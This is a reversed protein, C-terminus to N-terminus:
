GCGDTVTWTRTITYTNFACTGAAGQTSFEAYSVSTIACESCAQNGVVSPPTPVADCEVTADFPVGILSPASCCEDAYKPEPVAVCGATFHGAKLNAQFNRGDCRRAFFGTAASCGTTCYQIPFSYCAEDPLTITFTYVGTAVKTATLCQVVPTFAGPNTVLVELTPATGANACNTVCSLTVAYTKGQEIYWSQVAGTGSTLGCPTCPVNTDVCGGDLAVVSSLRGVGLADTYEVQAHAGSAQDATGLLTAGRCDELCEWLAMFNGDQDADVFWPDHATGTSASGDVHMVLMTVMEGPAFGTGTFVCTEGPQYDEKDTTLTQSWAPAAAAVLWVFAFSLWAPVFHRALSSM